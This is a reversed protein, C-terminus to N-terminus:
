ICVCVCVCVCVRVWDILMALIETQGKALSASFPKQGLGRQLARRQESKSRSGEGVALESRVCLKVSSCGRLACIIFLKGNM